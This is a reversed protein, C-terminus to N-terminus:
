QIHRTTQVTHIENKFIDFIIKKTKQYKQRVAWTM